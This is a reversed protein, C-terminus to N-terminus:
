ICGDGLANVLEEFSIKEEIMSEKVTKGLRLQSTQRIVLFTGDGLDTLTLVDGNEISYKSLMEKPLTIEGCRGVQIRRGNM